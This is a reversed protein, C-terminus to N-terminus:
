FRRRRLLLLLGTGFVALSMPEPIASTRAKSAPEVQAPLLSLPQPLAEALVAKPAEAGTDGTGAVPVAMAMGATALGTLLQLFRRKL